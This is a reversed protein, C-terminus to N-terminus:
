LDRSLLCKAKMAVEDNKEQRRQSVIVPSNEEHAARIRIARPRVFSGHIVNYRKGHWTGLRPWIRLSLPSHDADFVLRAVLASCGVVFRRTMCLTHGPDPRPSRSPFPRSLSHFHRSALYPAFTRVTSPFLPYRFSIVNCRASNATWRAGRSRFPRNERTRILPLAAHAAMYKRAAYYKMLRKEKDVISSYSITIRVHAVRGTKARCRSLPLLSLSSFSFLFTTARQSAPLSPPYNRRVRNQRPTERSIPSLSRFFFSPNKATVLSFDLSRCFVSWPHFDRDLLKRTGHTTKESSRNSQNKCLKVCWTTYINESYVQSFRYM